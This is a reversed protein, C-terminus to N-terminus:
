KCHAGLWCMEEMVNALKPVGTPVQPLKVSPEQWAEVEFSTKSFTIVCESEKKM